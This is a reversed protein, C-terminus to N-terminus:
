PIPRRAYISCITTAAFPCPSSLPRAPFISPNGGTSSTEYFDQSVDVQSEHQDAYIGQEDLVPVDLKFKEILYDTLDDVSTNLLRDSPISDIEAAMQKLRDELVHHWDANAFLLSEDPSAYTRM